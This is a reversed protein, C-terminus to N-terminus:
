GPTHAFVYEGLEREGTEEVAVLRMRATHAPMKRLAAPSLPLTLVEGAAPDFPVDELRFESVEGGVEVRQLLDVRKVGALPAQMRSVVADDDTRMTCDVRGGPPVRYERIRLGQRRLAELFPASIVAAVRGQRVVARIGDAFASLEELRASCSACAFLHEELPAEEEPAVEGLWYAVLTEFGIPEKCM